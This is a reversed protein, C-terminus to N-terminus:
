ETLYSAFPAPNSFWASVIISSFASVDYLKKYDLREVPRKGSSVSPSGDQGHHSELISLLEDNSSQKKGGPKSRKGGSGRLSKIRDLSTSLLPDEDIRFSKDDDLAAALDESDSTFDSSSSEQKLKERQDVPDYDDDESDDSPLGLYQEDKPPAALEEPASAYESESSSSEVKEDDQGDPDYDNDDSDDSPLRFDHHPNHGATAAAEPFVKQVHSQVMILISFYFINRILLYSGLSKDNVEWSDAISLSSGQSDNVLDICDVKCDCGPCLWGNDDPPVALGSFFM